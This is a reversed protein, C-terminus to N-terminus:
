QTLGYGRGHRRRIGQRRWAKVKETPQAPDGSIPLWRAPLGVRTVGALSASECCLAGSTTNDTLDEDPSLLLHPLTIRSAKSTSTTATNPLM